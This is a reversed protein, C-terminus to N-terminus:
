RRRRRTYLWDLGGFGPFFHFFPPSRSHVEPRFTRIFAARERQVRDRGRTSGTMITYVVGVHTHTHTRHAIKMSKELCRRRKQARKQCVNLVAARALALLQNKKQRRASKAPRYVSTTRMAEPSSTKLFAQIYPSPHVNYRAIEPTFIKPLHESFHITHSIIDRTLRHSPSLFFTM